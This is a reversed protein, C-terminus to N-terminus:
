PHILKKREEERSDTVVWDAIMDALKGYIFTLTQRRKDLRVTTQELEDNKRCKWDMFDLDTALNDDDDIERKRSAPM